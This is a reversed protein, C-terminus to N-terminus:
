GPCQGDELVRRFVLRGDRPAAMVVRSRCRGGPTAALLRLMIGSILGDGTTASGLTQSQLTEVGAFPGRAAISGWQRLVQRTSAELGPVRDIDDLSWFAQQGTRPAPDDDGRWAAVTRAARRAQEGALGTAALAEAMKAEPLFNLDIRGSELRWEVQIAVGDVQRTGRRPVTGGGPQLLARSLAELALDARAADIAPDAAAALRRAALGDGTMRVVLATGIALVFLAALLAFGRRRAPDPGPRARM